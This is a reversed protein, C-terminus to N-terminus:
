ALFGFRGAPPGGLGLRDDIVKKFFPPPSRFEFLFRSRGFLRSAGGKQLARQQTLRRMKTAAAEGDMM